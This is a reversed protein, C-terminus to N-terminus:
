EDALRKGFLEIDVEDFAEDVDQFEGREIEDIAEQLMGRLQETQVVRESSQAEEDMM